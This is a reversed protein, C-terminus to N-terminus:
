YYSWETINYCHIFFLVFGMQGYAEGVRRPSQLNARESHDEQKKKKKLHVLQKVSSMFTIFLVNRGIKGM